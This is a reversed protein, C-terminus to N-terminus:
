FDLLRFFNSLNLFTPNSKKDSKQCFFYRMLPSTRFGSEFPDAFTPYLRNLAGQADVKSISKLLDLKEARNQLRQQHISFDGGVDSKIVPDNCFQCVKM